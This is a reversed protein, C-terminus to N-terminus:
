TPQILNLLYVKHHTYPKWSGPFNFKQLVGSDGIYFVENRSNKIFRTYENTNISYVGVPASDLLDRGTFTRNKENFDNLADRAVNAAEVALKVNKELFKLTSEPTIYEIENLKFWWWDSLEPITVKVTNDNRDVREIEGIKGQAMSVEASSTIRIQMGIKLDHIDVM